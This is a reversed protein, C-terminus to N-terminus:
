ESFEFEYGCMYVSQGEQIGLEKLREVIGNKKINEQFYRIGDADNFNTSDLLRQVYSGDVIFQGDEKYVRIKEEEEQDEVYLKDYTEPESPANQIEKFVEYLLAKVNSTTAASGAFIKIGTDKLADKLLELCIEADPIDMKNAFIIQTLEPLKPKLRPLDVHLP